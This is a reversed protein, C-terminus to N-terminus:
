RRTQKENEQLRPPLFVFVAYIAATWIALLWIESSEVSTKKM